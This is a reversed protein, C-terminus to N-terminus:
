GLTKKLINLLRDMWDGTMGSHVPVIVRKQYNPEFLCRAVDFRRVGAEIGVKGLNNILELIKSSEVDLPVVYPTINSEELGDCLGWSQTHNRIISYNDQRQKIEFEKSSMWMRIGWSGPIPQRYYSAYCMERCVDMVSSFLPFSSKDWSDLLKQTNHIRRLNKPSRKVIDEVFRYFEDDDSGVGGLTFCFRFKSYSFISFNGFSGLKSNKYYSEVAHACDEIVVMKRDLAIDMFRDMDQPFGFQHYCWALKSEVSNMAPYGYPLLSAYVWTGMWPPVYIPSMKDNLDGTLKLYQLILGIAAKGSGVFRVNNDHTTESPGIASRFIESLNVGLEFNM